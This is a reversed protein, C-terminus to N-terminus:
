LTNNWFYTFSIFPQHRLKSAFKNLEFHNLQLPQNAPAFV